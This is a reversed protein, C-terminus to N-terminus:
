KNFEKITIETVKNPQRFTDSHKQIIKNKLVLELEDIKLKQRKITESQQECITKTEQHNHYEDYYKNQWYGM